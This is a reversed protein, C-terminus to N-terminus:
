SLKITKDQIMRFYMRMFEIEKNAVIGSRYSSEGLHIIANAEDNFIQVRDDSDDMLHKYIHEYLGEYHISNSKLLKRVEGPDKNMQSMIQNFLAESASQIIEDALKGNFVNQRLTIFTNRIDPYCKKVLKVLSKSSFKINEKKLIFKCYKFIEDAPPASINFIQCRSKLEPIIYQEYNCALIFQTNSQTQEMLERLMKQAGQPGFTLSDSENLYVLKMKGTSMAQAFPKVKDRIPNIGTDDSANIKLTLNDLGHYKILVNVFTGKGVGPPGYILMNPRHELAEKLSGKINNNLIMNEFKQPEYVFEWLKREKM